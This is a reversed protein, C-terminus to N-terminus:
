TCACNCSCQISPPRKKPTIKVGSIPETDFHALARKSLESIKRKLASSSADLKASSKTSSVKVSNAM